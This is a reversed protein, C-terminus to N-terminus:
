STSLTPAAGSISLVTLFVAGGYIIIWVLPDPDNYQLIASWLLLAGVIFKVVTAIM